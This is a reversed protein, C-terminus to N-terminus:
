GRCGCQALEQVFADIATRPKDQAAPMGDAMVAFLLPRGDQTMVVGTLSTVGTLSGTKGHVMGAARTGVYREWLTGSVGGTALWGYLERTEQRTAAVALAQTLTSPAIRNNNTYGAGDKLVLSSTDLGLSALQAITDEMAHAPDAPHGQAAALLRTMLEAIANDSAHLMYAAVESLPASEVTGVVEGGSGASASTVTAGATAAIGRETLRAALVQAANAAPDPYRPAYEESSKKGVEVALGTVPAAYGQDFAYTPWVAPKAPGPFVSTDAVVSVTTVGRAALEAAIQDALDGLGAYGYAPMDGGWPADTRTNVGGTGADAALLMDGGAVLTVRANQQDFRAVTQLRHDPGLASVVAVATLLKTTSAPVRPTSAGVDALVEGTILDTVSVGVHGELWPNAALSSALAQVAAASPAPAAPDDFAAVTGSPAAPAEPVVPGPTIFPAPPSPEPSVTIWGPALDKADAYAYGGAGALVVTGVLIGAIAGKRM